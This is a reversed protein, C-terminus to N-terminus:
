LIQRGLAEAVKGAKKMLTHFREPKLSQAGDSLAAEPDDHVEIILGDAGGAIAALAMPEVLRWDGTAHSPDVVVPLHTREHILPIVSLDLTNRTLNEFGRVGRECLIVNPNGSALIYEASMIWEEVTASIGRKLLIPKGTQGAKKLLAYNQMNRAGIQIIDVHEVFKEIDDESMLESVVPMDQKKGAKELAILGEEGLGQFSYPSTRPKYAGGRLVKAGYMKVEGAIKEISDASEVACPGAMVVIKEGQGIRIGKVDVITAEPHTERNAMRYPVQIRRVELVWPNATFDRESIASTDGVVCLVIYSLGPEPRVEVGQDELRRILKQLEQEPIEKKVTIIM